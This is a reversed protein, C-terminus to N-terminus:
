KGYSINSIAYKINNIIDSASLSIKGVKAAAIDGALGHLYVALCCASVDDIGQASFAAIMGALVDGSGGTAMGSNGTINIYQRGDCSTVTTHHGKLVLTLSNEAAFEKSLELQNQQVYSIDRNILRAFEMEHPTFILSCGCSSLMDINQAVAWLGDADVVIPIKSTLLIQSLLEGVGKSRGVGPGFLLVDSCSMKESLADFSNRCLFGNDEALPITMPETLKTELVSNLSKPVAASVLGAGCQVCANAALTVAGTLGTSAGAILVKGYDGKHSNDCRKPLATAAFSKDIVEIDINCSNIIYEPISINAITVKGVYDAGPYLLLGRKYAAFSVTIDAKITSRSVEGTDANVGSPVDVALVTSASANIMDIIEAALGSIEGKIGTGFIADVILDHQFIHTDIFDSDFLETIKIGAKEAINFNIEADPSFNTGCVLFVEVSYNRMSLLRAIALGDGGNNGRGCFIGVKKVNMKEIESVCAFAANEMLVISPVSGAETALRDIERMQSATCVKM